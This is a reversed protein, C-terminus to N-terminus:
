RSSYPLLAPTPLTFTACAGGEGRPPGKCLLRMSIRNSAYISKQADSLAAQGNLAANKLIIPEDPRNRVS